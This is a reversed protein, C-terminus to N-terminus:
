NRRGFCSACAVCKRATPTAASSCVPLKPPLAGGMECARLQAVSAKAAAIQMAMDGAGVHFERYPSRFTYDKCVYFIALEEHVPEGMVRLLDVYFSAQFVHDPKPRELEEFERKNISKIEVIRRSGADHLQIDPSGSIRLEHDFVPLEGFNNAPTACHTCRLERHLGEYAVMGCNCRWVGYVNGLGVHALVADRVHKEAARGLAWVIRDGARPLNVIPIDDVAALRYLRPCFSLLSSVHIYGERVRSSDPQADAEEVMRTIYGESLAPAAAPRQARNRVRQPRVHEQMSRLLSV